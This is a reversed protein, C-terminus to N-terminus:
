TLPYYCRKARSMESDAEDRDPKAAWMQFDRVSEVSRYADYIVLLLGKQEAVAAVEKLRDAAHRSLWCKREPEYGKVPRGVFNESSKYRLDILMEPAYM